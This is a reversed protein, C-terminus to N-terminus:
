ALLLCSCVVCSLLCGVVVVNLLGCVVVFLLWCFVCYVVVVFCRVVVFLLCCKTCLLCICVGFWSVVFVLVVVDVFLACRDVFFCVVFLLGCVVM